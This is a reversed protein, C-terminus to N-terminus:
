FLQTLLVILIIVKPQCMLRSEAPYAYGTHQRVSWSRVMLLFTEITAVTKNNKTVPATYLM